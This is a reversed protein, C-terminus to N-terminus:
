SRTKRSAESYINVVAHACAPRSFQAVAVDRAEARLRARERSDELLRRIADGLAARDLPQVLIVGPGQLDVLGGVRTAVVPRGYAMAERASFGYGERRSPVCVVAAREYYAGMKSPPVFGVAEPIRARLPGDGVIVRELGETAEVFDLVGKEESLRGAYLVHPPAAPEGVREPIEVGFPVVRVERAGLARAEGALFNSAALVLRADRLLPRVLWPARRALEVDTGWVQLVYPKGTARAAIASPIWHAHVLDVDHAARRAALSYAALLGPVFALKWPAARLNQAIGSGYAIGFHRFDAPAVVKVDVGLARVGKVSAAVFSGAVDDAGRPYSTTLVAVKM